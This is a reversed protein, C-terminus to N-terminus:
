WRAVRRWLRDAAVGALLSAALAPWTWGYGGLGAVVPFVQWHVLYIWLSAGALAGILPVAAAPVRLQPLFALALVGASVLLARWGEDYYDWSGAAFLVLVLLTQPLSRARALAWGIAFCWFITAPTYMSFPEQEGAFAFRLGLGLLVAGVAFPFPRGRELAAAAPVALVAVVPLLCLVLAEVFWYRWEPAPEDPGFLNVGFLLSPGYADSLLVLGGLWLGAPVVIRVLSRLQRRLRDPADLAFRAFSFGALVMLVHAGGRIDFTGIHSGVVLLIALARLVLGTELRATRGAPAADLEAVPMRPWDVPVTGLIRQLGAATAAYSL